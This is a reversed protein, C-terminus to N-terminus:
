FQCPSLGWINVEREHVVAQLVFPDPVPLKAILSFILSSAIDRRLASKIANAAGSLRAMGAVTSSPESASVAGAAGSVTPGVWFDAGCIACCVAAGCVGGWVG